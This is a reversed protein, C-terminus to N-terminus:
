IKLHQKMANTLDFTLFPIFADALPFDTTNSAFTIQPPRKVSGRRLLKTCGSSGSSQTSSLPHSESMNVMLKRKTKFSCTHFYRREFVVNEKFDICGHIQEHM